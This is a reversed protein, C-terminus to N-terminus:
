ATRTAVQNTINNDLRCLSHQGNCSNTVRNSRACLESEQKQNTIPLPYVYHRKDATDARWVGLQSVKPPSFCHNITLVYKNSNFGM